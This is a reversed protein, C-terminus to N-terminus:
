ERIFDLHANQYEPRAAGERLKMFTQYPAKTVFMNVLWAPVSGAPDFQVTYVIRQLYASIPTIEWHAKSTKIRVKGDKQPVLDPEANADIVVTAGQPQTVTIHSVYDRNTCPWPLCIESYFIVENAAVKRVLSSGKNNYVWDKQKDIDLLFAVLSSMRSAVNCEVKVSKFDSNDTNRTYVKIGDDERKLHWDQQAHAACALLSIVVVAGVYHMVREGM